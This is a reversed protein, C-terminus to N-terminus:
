ILLGKLEDEIEEADNILDGALNLLHTTMGLQAERIPVFMIELQEKITSLAQKGNEVNQIHKDLAAKIKPHNKVLYEFIKELKEKDTFTAPIKEVKKEVIGLMGGIRFFIRKATSFAGTVVGLNRGAEILKGKLEAYGREEKLEEIKDNVEKRLIKSTNEVDNIENYIKSALNALEKVSDSAEVAQEEMGKFEEEKIKPPKKKFEEFTVPIEEKKQAVKKTGAELVKSASAIDDIYNDDYRRKIVDGELWWISGDVECELVGLGHDKFNAIRKADEWKVCGMELSARIEASNKNQNSVFKDDAFNLIEKQLGKKIVVPMM